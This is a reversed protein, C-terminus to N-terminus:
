GSTNCDNLQTRTNDIRYEIDLGNLDNLIYNIINNIEIDTLSPIGAMELSYAEKNQGYRVICPLSSLRTEEDPIGQLSPYLRSVGSGDPM